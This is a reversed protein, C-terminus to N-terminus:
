AVDVELASGNWTVDATWGVPNPDGNSTAAKWDVRVGGDVASMSEYYAKPTSSIDGLSVGGLLAVGGTADVRYFVLEDPWSVGGMFCSALIVVDDIGDGTVDVFASAADFPPGNNLWGVWASGGVIGEPPLYTGDTFAAPPHDCLRPTDAQLLQQRVTDRSPQEIPATTTSAPPPPSAAEADADVDSQEVVGEFTSLEAFTAGPSGGAPAGAYPAAGGAFSWVLGTAVAAVVFAAVGTLLPVLLAGKSITATGPGDPAAGSSAPDASEPRADDSLSM